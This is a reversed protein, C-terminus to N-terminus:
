QELPLLTQDDIVSRLLAHALGLDSLEEISLRTRDCQCDPYGGGPCRQDHNRTGRAAVLEIQRLALRLQRQQNNTM